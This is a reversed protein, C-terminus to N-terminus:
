KRSLWFVAVNGISHALVSNSNKALGEFCTAREESNSLLGRNAKLKVLGRKRLQERLEIVVHETVGGKGIRVTVPLSADKAQRLIGRPVQRSIRIVEGLNQAEAHSEEM